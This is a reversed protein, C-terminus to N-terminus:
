GYKTRCKMQSPMSKSVMAKSRRQICEYRDNDTAQMEYERRFDSVEDDGFNKAATRMVAELSTNIRTLEIWHGMSTVLQGGSEYNLMVHGAFGRKMVDSSESVISCKQDDAPQGGDHQSVVTLVKLTYRSTGVDPKITYLITNSMAQVVAFGNELCLDGVVQLQQPVGTQQLQTPFFEIKFQSNCGDPLQIFPSPGLHEESWELILSKLSFDSCMVTHGCDVAWGMFQMTGNSPFAHDGCASCCEWNFVVSDREVQRLDDVLGQWVENTLPESSSVYKPLEVIPSCGVSYTNIREGPVTTPQVTRFMDDYSNGDFITVLVGVLKDDPNTVFVRTLDGSQFQSGRSPTSSPMSSPMPTKQNPGSTSTMWQKM